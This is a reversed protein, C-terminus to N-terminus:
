ARDDSELHDEWELHIFRREYEWVKPSVGDKLLWSNRALMWRRFERLPRDGHRAIERLGPLRDEQEQLWEAAHIEEATVASDHERIQKVLAFPHKLAQATDLQDQTSLGSRNVLQRLNDNSSRAAAAVHHARRIDGVATAVGRVSSGILHGAATLWFKASM